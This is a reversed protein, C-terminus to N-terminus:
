LFRKNNQVMTGGVKLSAPVQDQAAKAEAETAFSGWSITHCSRGKFTKPFIYLEQDPNHTMFEDITERECAVLLAVTFPKGQAKFRQQSESVYAELDGSFAKAPQAVAKPAETKAVVENKAAPKPSEQKPAPQPETKVPPEAQAQSQPPESEQPAASAPEPEADAVQDSPVEVSETPMQPDESQSPEAEPQSAAQESASPASSTSSAGPGMFKYWGFGAAALILVAVLAPLASRRKPPTAPEETDEEEHRSPMIVQERARASPPEPEEEIAQPTNEDQAFSQPLYSSPVDEEEALAQEFAADPMAAELDDASFEGTYNPTDEVMDFQGLETGTGGFQSEPEDFDFGEQELERAAQDMADLGLDDEHEAFPDAAVEDEAFPDDVEEDGFAADDLADLGLADDGEDFGGPPTGDGVEDPEEDFAHVSPAGDDFGDTALPEDNFPEDAFPEDAFPDSPEADPTEEAEEPAAPESLQNWIDDEGTQAEPEEEDLTDDLAAALIDTKPGTSPLGDEDEFELEGIVESEALAPVQEDARDLEIDDLSAALLDDPEPHRDTDQEDEGHDELQFDMDDAAPNEGTPQDWSPEDAPEAEHLSPLGEILTADEDEDAHDQMSLDLPNEGDLATADLDDSESDADISELGLPAFLEGQRERPERLHVAGLLLMVYLASEVLRPEWELEEALEAATSQWGRELLDVLAQYQAPLPTAELAATFSSSAFAIQGQSVEALLEQNELNAFTRIVLALIQIKLKPVRATLPGEQVELSGEELAFVSDVVTSIQQKLAMALQNPTALGLEKLKRGLSEGQPTGARLEELSESDLVDMTVLIDTFHEGQLESSAFILHGEEFFLKRTGPHFTISGSKKNIVFDFIVAHSGYHSFNEIAM